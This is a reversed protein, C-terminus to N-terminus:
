WGQGATSCKLKQQRRRMLKSSTNKVTLTAWRQERDSKNRSLCGFNRRAQVYSCMYMVSKGSFRFTANTGIPLSNKFAGRWGFTQKARVLYQCVNETWLIVLDIEGEESESIHEYKHSKCESTMASRVHASVRIDMWPKQTFWNSLCYLTLFVSPTTVYM